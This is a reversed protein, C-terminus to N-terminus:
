KEGFFTDDPLFGVPTNGLSSTTIIDEESFRVIEIIPAEYTKKNM